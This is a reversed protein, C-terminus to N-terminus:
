EDKEIYRLDKNILGPAILIEFKFIPVILYTRPYTLEFKQLPNLHNKFALTRNFM